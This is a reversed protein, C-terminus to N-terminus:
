KSNDLDTKGEAVSVIITCSLKFVNEEKGEANEAAIVMIVVVVRPQPYLDRM